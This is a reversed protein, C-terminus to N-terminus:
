HNPKANDVLEKTTEYLHTIWAADGLKEVAADNPAEVSIPLDEPVARVYKALDVDGEGPAFRVSRSEAIYGELDEPLAAKCDCVQLMAFDEVHQAVQTSTAGFRSLHLTDPLVYAGVSRAVESAQELSSLPNYSIPELSPKIGLPRAAAAIEGLTEALSERNETGATCTFTKAGLAHASELAPAWDDRSTDETIRLFETDFVYLGTKALADRISTLMPSGPSLDYSPETETVKLVRIGVFDFGAEAALYIFRDPPTTITSLPAIGFQRTMFSHRESSALYLATPGHM